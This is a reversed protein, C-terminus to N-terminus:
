IYGPIKDHAGVFCNQPILDKLFDFHTFDRLHFEISIAVNKDQATRRANNLDNRIIQEINRPSGKM